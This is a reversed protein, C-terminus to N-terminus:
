VLGLQLCDTSGETVYGYLLFFNDEVARLSVVTLPSIVVVFRFMEDMRKEVRVHKLVKWIYGSIDTM